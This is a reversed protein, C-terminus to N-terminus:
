GNALCGEARCVGAEAAWDGSAVERLERLRLLQHDGLSVVRRASACTCTSHREREDREVHEREIAFRDDTLWIDFPAREEFREPEATGDPARCSLEMAWTMSM